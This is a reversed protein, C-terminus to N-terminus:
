VSAVDLFVASCLLKDEFSHHIKNVIRHVQEITSHQQRFGFQYNPILNDKDIIPLLRKLLLKELIKSVIPLLSIPRYSTVLEPNKGPKPILIIKAVKWQLPFFNNRLVANYLQTLFKFGVDPLEKLIKGTILDYRPSKKINLDTLIVKKVENITFKNITTEHQCKTDLYQLIEEEEERLNIGSNPTFVKELHKAFLEAKDANSKAWAGNAMRIPPNPVQPRKLKKTAKWLSYDTAEIASLGRLYHEIAQEKENNLMDHIEKITKLKTKIELSRTSQWKKRLNRKLAIMDRIAQLCSNERVNTSSIPTSNWTAQQICLNFHEIAETIDNETKLPIKLCLTSKLLTRFNDWNTRKNHLGAPKGKEIVQSNVTVIVPSHDSSLDLCSEVTINKNSIGKTVCIDIVDPIKKKDTLWYTPEGTSIVELNSYTTCKHLERGRPTTLRSGWHPHKANFDGGAIFRHGLSQFLQLFQGTKIIHKPPCYVASITIPGTWDEIVINTAQIHEHQFKDVEHHM